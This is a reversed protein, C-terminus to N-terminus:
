GQKRFVLAFSVPVTGVINPLGMVERLKEVGQSLDYKSANVLIPARTTVLLRDGRLNVVRLSANAEQSQGRISLKGAVELDVSAGVDLAKVQNMDVTGEFQATPFRAVEFLMTQLRENRLPIQTEVSALDIVLKVEGNPGVEGVLRKFKQVEAVNTNKTTVFRLDSADNDLTWPTKASSGPLSSCGILGALAISTAALLSIPKM